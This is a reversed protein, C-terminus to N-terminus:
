PGPAGTGPSSANHLAVSFTPGGGVSVGVAVRRAGRRGARKTRMMRKAIGKAEDGM